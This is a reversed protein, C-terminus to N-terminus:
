PLRSFPCDFLMVSCGLFSIYIDSFKVKPVLQLRKFSVECAGFLVALM